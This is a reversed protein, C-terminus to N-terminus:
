PQRGLLYAYACAVMAAGILVLAISLANHRVPRFSPESERWAHSRLLAGAAVIIGGAPALLLAITENM